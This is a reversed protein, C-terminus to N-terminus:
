LAETSFRNVVLGSIISDSGTITLGDIGGGASDGRIEIIPTGAYGPQTTGDITVAATITPLASLPAITQVGTGIAFEITDPGPNSNADLIAQRLSGAGTDDINAVTYVAPADRGELEEVLLRFHMQKQFGLWQNSLTRIKFFRRLWRMSM